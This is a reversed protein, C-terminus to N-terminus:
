LLNLMGGLAGTLEGGCGCRRVPESVNQLNLSLYVTARQDGLGNEPGRAVWPCKM